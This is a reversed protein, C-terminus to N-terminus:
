DPGAVMHWSDAKLLWTTGTKRDLRFGMWNKSGAILTVDYDGAPVPGFEGLPEFTDGKIHWTEGTITHFRVTHLQNGLRVYRLAYGPGRKPSGVQKLPPPEKVPNWKGARVLWTAGTKRDLRLAFLPDAPILQIEYDGAPPPAAEELKEWRGSLLQWSEGTAPKFRVGKYVDGVTVVRLEYGKGPAAPEDGRAEVGGLVALCGGLFAGALIVRM